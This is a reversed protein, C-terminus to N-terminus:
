SGPSAHAPRSGSACVGRGSGRANRRSGTSADAGSTGLAIMASISAASPSRAGSALGLSAERCV